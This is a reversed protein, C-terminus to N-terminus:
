EVGGGGGGKELKKKMDWRLNMFPMVKEPMAFFSCGRREPSVRLQIM